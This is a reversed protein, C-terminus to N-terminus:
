SQEDHDSRIERLESDVVPEEAYLRWDLGTMLGILGGIFAGMVPGALGPHTGGELMGGIVTGVFTYIAVIIVRKSNKDTILMIVVATVLIGVIAPYKNSPSVQPKLPQLNIWLLVSVGAAVFMKLIIIRM